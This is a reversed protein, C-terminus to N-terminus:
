ADKGIIGGNAGRDMLSGCEQREILHHQAMHVSFQPTDTESDDDNRRPPADEIIYFHEPLDIEHPILNSTDREDDDEFVTEVTPFPDVQVLSMVEHHSTAQDLTRNSIEVARTTRPM